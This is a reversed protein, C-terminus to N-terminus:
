AWSQVPQANRAGRDPAGRLSMPCPAAPGPRNKGARIGIADQHATLLGLAQRARGVSLTNRALPYGDLGQGGTVRLLVQLAGERLAPAMMRLAMTGPYFSETPAGDSILVEHRELMVHHYVVSRCGAMQRVGPLGLLAKAAVFVGEPIGPVPVLVRHQPSVILDRGPIGAGLSGAKIRIPKDRHPDASWHRTTAGTWVVPQAGHDLTLVLDGCRLDEVKVEGRPTAIRTGAAFCIVGTNEFNLRNAAIPQGDTGRIQLGGVEALSGDAQDARLWDIPRLYTNGPNAANWAALTTENYWASLDVFDNDTQNPAGGGQIGTVADFDTIIDGGTDVVFVDPGAGGTLTDAGTGGQLTDRGDGGTLIDNGAQGDISDDGADGSLIDAGASALITDNGDGGSAVNVNGAADNSTAFAGGYSGTVLLDDGGGGELTDDGSGGLITDNGDGGILRDNGLGGDIADAGSGGEVTDDGSGANISDNGDGGLISDLGTGGLLTDNGAGGSLTDNDAGGDISDAGQGGTLQDNGALGSAIIGGTDAAANLTDAQNGLTFAEIQGFQGSAGNSATYSGSETGTHLISVATNAAQFDLRDLDTNGADEGGIITASGYGVEFTDAGTGGDLTALGFGEVLRDNGAGGFLLDGAGTTGGAALTDDGAGGEITDDGAGGLLSDNGADGFLLDNGGSDGNFTDNGDGGFFTDNGAADWSFDNGAGGDILNNGTGAPAGGADDFVDDGDGGIATDNGTGFFITDNGAGGVLSDDGDDGSLRDAGDGGDLTDNGAGGIITDNGGQTSILNAGGTGTVSDNGGGTIVNEFNSFQQAGPALDTVVGTVMDVTLNRNDAPTLVLTDNGAGGDLTDDGAFSGDLIVLDDGGGADVFDSGEGANITDNGTTVPTALPTLAVNDILVDTSSTGTSTPNSFRLTTATTSATFGLTVIQSSGDTVLVTRTALVQGNADLVDVVLTHTASGNGNEFATFSLQYQFGTETAVTQQATGGVGNNGANFALAQNDVFTGAGTVTWGATTGTAFDGNTVTVPAPTRSDGFIRDDGDGGTLSDNGGGGHLTDNGAGGDITDTGDGGFVVDNGGGGAVADNGTGAHIVDAGEGGILSDNGAGGDITDDGAGGDITDNGTAAVFQVNDLIAGQSNNDGIETFRLTHTGAVPFPIDLTYTAWTTNSTPIITASAIVVGAPNLIQVIFGDTGVTGSTRTVADFNLRAVGPEAVTFAQELVTTQGANGDMEAVPNTSGNGLYAGETNTELDTGSWGTFGASFDGNVLTPTRFDGSLLDNGDGGLISDGGSGGAVTDAGAGGQITDAASGGTIRDNGDEGDLSLSVTSSGANFLDAFATGSITEFGTFTGSTAGSFHSFNGSGDASFSITAGTSSQWNAFDLLDNGSGGSLSNTGANDWVRVTDDGDEMFITDNGASLEVRDNGSGARVLDNGAWDDIVDNGAGGLVTDNGADANITDNGDGGLIYDNGTTIQDGQADTYGPGMSDGGATGDVATKFDGAVRNALMDGTATVVSTLNLSLIPAATLAIQDANNVEEPALYTNGNVDQFVTATIVATTGDVYTIVANYTAVADFNQPLGGNIRFSDFGGGNDTDYTSNDDESLREATLFRVNNNLPNAASGYTGLIGAANEAVENGQTTDIRPLTGLFIVEFSTPM